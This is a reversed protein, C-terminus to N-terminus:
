QARDGRRCGGADVTYTASCSTTAAPALVTALCAVPGALPDDVSVPDLTVNGSNTVTFSYTITSGATNGTPNGAVKELELAPAAPITTDTSDTASVVAGTPPTGRTIASNAVHGADVDAQTLVYTAECTTSEDPALVVVPCSVVGIKPDDIVISDLTVNGANTVVFGYDISSGATNGTPTGAQKDLTIAPDSPITTSTNAFARVGEGDPATGFATANNLVLGADVDAQTITYTAECTMTATPALETQPCPVAALLPDEVSVPNLTVNGTNTVVFTYDISSGARVNIPNGTPAGAQKDLTITPGSQIPTDTSDTATAESIGTPPTGTVLATNALHGADVDAQTFSYVALCVTTEGPALTTVPCTVDGVTTDEVLIPDLTVNGTNTVVFEFDLTDGASDGSPTAAQKDLAITATRDIATDTSDTAEIM